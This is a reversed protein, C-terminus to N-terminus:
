SGGLCPTFGCFIISISGNHRIQDAVHEDLLAIEGIREGAVPGGHVDGLAKRLGIRAVGAPLAVPRYRVLLDAVHQDLLAIEGTREVAVSGGHVDSFVQRLGIRAVGAPLAVQRNRM